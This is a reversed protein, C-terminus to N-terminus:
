LSAVLDMIIRFSNKTSIPSVTETYDIGKRQTFGKAVLRVKFREVRGDKDNKTKFVWKSGVLKHINHPEVLEWISNNKMSELENLMAERWKDANQSEM